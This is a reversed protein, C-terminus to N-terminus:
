NFSNSITLYFKYEDTTPQIDAGIKKAIGTDFSINEFGGKAGVFASYANVTEDNVTEGRLGDAGVYFHSQLKGFSNPKSIYQIRGFVGNEVSTFGTNYARGRDLGGAYM